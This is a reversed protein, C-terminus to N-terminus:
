SGCNGGSPRPVPNSGSGGFPQCRALRGLGLLVGKTAGYVDIAERAYESCSPLFRCHGGLVGALTYQYLHIVAVLVGGLWSSRGSM